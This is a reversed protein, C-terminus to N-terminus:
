DGSFLEGQGDGHWTFTSSVSEWEAAAAAAAKRRRLISRRAPATEGGWVGDPERNRLAHELCDIRVSCGACFAVQESCDDGLEPYFFAPPKGELRCRGRPAWDAVGM